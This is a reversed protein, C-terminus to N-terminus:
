GRRHIGRINEERSQEEDRREEAEKEEKEGRMEDRAERGMEAQKVWDRKLDEEVGGDSGSESEYEVECFDEHRSIASCSM